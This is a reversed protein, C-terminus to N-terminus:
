RDRINITYLMIRRLYCIRQTRTHTPIFLNNTPFPLYVIRTYTTTPARKELHKSNLGLSSSLLRNCHNQTPGCETEVSTAADNNRDKRKSCYRRSVLVVKRDCVYEWLEVTNVMMGDAESVTSVEIQRMCDHGISVVLCSTCPM